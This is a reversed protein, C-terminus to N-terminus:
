YASSAKVIAVCPSCCGLLCCVLGLSSPLLPCNETVLDGGGRCERSQGVNGECSELELVNGSKGSMSVM